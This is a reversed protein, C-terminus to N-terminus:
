LILLPSVIALYTIIAGFVSALASLFNYLLAKKRTFGSHILIAFDGIEQPIEHAAIAITTIMGLSINTLYAAAIIVGDAFNHVADGILNLYGMAKTTKFECEKDHCHHWHIFREICFFVIIGILIFLPASDFNSEPILDFFVAGLLAGAAFAVLILTVKSLFEKKLALAFIGILAILSIIFVSIITYAIEHAM